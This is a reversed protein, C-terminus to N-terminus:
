RLDTGSANVLAVGFEALAQQIELKQVSGTPQALRIGCRLPPGFRELLLVFDSEKSMIVASAERAAHVIALDKADRLGVDWVAHAPVGFTESM